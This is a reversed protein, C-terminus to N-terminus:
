NLFTEAAELLERTVEGYKEGLASKSLKRNTEIFRYLPEFPMEDKKSVGLFIEALLDASTKRVKAFEEQAGRDNPLKRLGESIRQAWVAELVEEFVKTFDKFSRSAIFEPATQLVAIVTVVYAYVTTRVTRQSVELLRPDFPQAEFATLERFELLTSVQAQCRRFLNVIENTSPTRKRPAKSVLFQRNAPPDLEGSLAVLAMSVAVVIPWVWEAGEFGYEITQWISVSTIGIAALLLLAKQWINLSLRM